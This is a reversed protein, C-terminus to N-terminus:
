GGDRARAFYFERNRCFSPVGAVGAGVWEACESRHRCFICRWVANRLQSESSPDTSTLEVGLNAAMKVSQDLRAAVAEIVRM